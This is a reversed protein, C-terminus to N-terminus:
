RTGNTEEVEAGEQSNESRSERESILKELSALYEPEFRVLREVRMLTLIQEGEPREHLKESVRLIIKRDEEPYGERVCIVSTLLPESVLVRHLRTEIQPNLEALTELGDITVLGAAAKGFFVPLVTQGVSDMDVIEKFFVRPDGQGAKRFENELWMLPLEGSGKQVLLSKERADELMGGSPIVLVFKNLPTEAIRNGVLIPELGFKDRYKFFEYGFTLFFDYDGANMKPVFVRHTEPIDVKYQYGQEEVIKRILIESSIKADAQTVSRLADLPFAARFLRDESGSPILCLLLGPVVLAVVAPL